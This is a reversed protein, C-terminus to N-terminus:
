NIYWDDPMSDYTRPDDIIDVEDEDIVQSDFREGDYSLMLPTTEPRELAIHPERGYQRQYELQRNAQELGEEDPQVAVTKLHVPRNWVEYIRQMTAAAQQEDLPIGNFYHSLLLGGEEEYDGDEVKITPKGFNTFDLLLKNKIDEPDHSTVRPQQGGRGDPFNEYAWFENRQVFEPTIYEDIFTVDNHSERVTRMEQWGATYDVNDLAEEISAYRHPDFDETFEMVTEIEGTTIDDLVGRYKPRALSFNRRALGDETLVKWPHQYVDHDGRIGQLAAEEVEDEDLGTTEDDYLRQYIFEGLEEVVQDDEVLEQERLDDLIDDKGVYDTRREEFVDTVYSTLADLTGDEELEEIREEVARVAELGEADIYPHDPDLEWLNGVVNRVDTGQWIYDEVARFDVDATFQKPDITDGDRVEAVGEVQLLHQTVEKRNATNEIYEWLQKGLDYPNLGPSGLVRSQHDAYTIYEDSDAFLEGAMMISEWYAAWGENMVKTMKQPAFYYSERRLIDIVDEQWDELDTLNGDEDTQKGHERLFLMLDEEPEEPVQYTEEEDLRDELEEVWEPDFVTERVDEEGVLDALKERVNPEEDEEDQEEERERQIESFEKFATHQDINDEITLMNDIFREIEGRDAEDSRMYERVTDAHGHIMNAADPDDDFLHYFRNRKFFDAHGMVHTIVAKQDAIENSVQLYAHFPNDNIVLEYAKGGFHKGKKRQQEYQMGWRWHPWRDQFGVYAGLENMEDYDVIWWKGEFPDLGMRHALDRADDRSDELEAATKNKQATVRERNSM